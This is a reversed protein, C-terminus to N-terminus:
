GGNLAASERELEEDDPLGEYRPNRKQPTVPASVAPASFKPESFLCSKTIPVFCSAARILETPTGRELAALEVRCGQAKLSEILPILTEDCTAVVISDVRPALALADVCIGAAWSWKPQIESESRASLEKRRIEYGCRLLADSFGGSGERQVIYAIARTLHREGVLHRLLKGYEVKSQAVNKAAFFLSQVDALIAVRGMNIQSNVQSHDFMTSEKKEEPAATM